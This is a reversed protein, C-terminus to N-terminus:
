HTKKQEEIMKALAKAQQQRKKEAASMARKAKQTEM